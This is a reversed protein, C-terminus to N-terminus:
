ILFDMEWPNSFNVAALQSKDPGERDKKEKVAVASVLAPVGDRGAADERRM